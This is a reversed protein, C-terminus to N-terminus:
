WEDIDTAGAYEDDSFWAIIEENPDEDDQNEVGPEDENLMQDLDALQYSDLGEGNNVGGMYYFGDAGIVADENRLPRRNPRLDIEKACNDRAITLAYGWKADIEEPVNYVADLTHFCSLLDLYINWCSEWTALADYPYKCPFHFYKSPDFVAPGPQTPPSLSSMGPTEGARSVLGAKVGFPHPASTLPLQASCRTQAADGRWRECSVRRTIERSEGERRRRAERRSEREAAGSGCWIGRIRRAFAFAARAATCAAGTEFNGTSDQHSLASHHRGVTHTCAATIRM